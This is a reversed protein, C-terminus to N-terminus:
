CGCQLDPTKAVCQCLSTDFAQGTQCSHVVGSQEYNECNTGAVASLQEEDMNFCTDCEVPTETECHPGGFGTPCQCKYMEEIV